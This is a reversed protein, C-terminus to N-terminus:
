ENDVLMMKEREYGIKVRYYGDVLLFEKALLNGEKRRYVNKQPVSDGEGGALPTVGKSGSVAADISLAAFDLCAYM